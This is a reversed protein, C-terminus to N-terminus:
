LLLLKRTKKKQKNVGRGVRVGARGSLLFAVTLSFAERDEICNSRSEPKKSRIGGYISGSSEVYAQHIMAPKKQEDSVLLPARGKQEHESGLIPQMSYGIVLPSALVTKRM